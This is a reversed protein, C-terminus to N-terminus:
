IDFRIKQFFFFFFYKSIYGASFKVWCVFCLCMNILGRKVKSMGYLQCFLKYISVYSFLHHHRYNLYNKGDYIHWITSFIVSYIFHFLLAIMKYNICLAFM